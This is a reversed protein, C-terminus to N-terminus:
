HIPKGDRWIYEGWSLGKIWIKTGDRIDDPLFSGLADHDPDPLVETVKHKVTFKGIDGNPHDFKSTAVFETPV